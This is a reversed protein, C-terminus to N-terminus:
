PRPEEQLITQYQRKWYEYSKFLDPTVLSRLKLFSLALSFGKQKVLRLRPRKKRDLPTLRYQMQLIFQMTLRIRRPFHASASSVVDQILSFALNQIESIHPPFGQENTLKKIELELIPFLLCSALLGRDLPSKHDRNLADAAKLYSFLLEGTEQEFYIHLKPFLIHIFESEYLLRFFPEASGSELM